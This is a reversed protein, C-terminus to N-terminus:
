KGAFDVKLTEGDKLEVAREWIIQEDLWAKLKYSGAPLNALRYSGNKDTRTFHPTDLVLITGRMHEHIECYLKIVGPKDFTQSAPKEEKRYRGLDFRKGKSLSFVNHYDDDQNPFEVTTGKQIGLLGPAFQYHHQELTASRNTSPEFAGELYVIATRPEPPGIPPKNQYRVNSAPSPIKPAAALNVKGEITAAGQLPSVLALFLVFITRLSDM